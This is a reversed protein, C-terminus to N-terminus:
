EADSDPRERHQDGDAPKPDRGNDPLRYIQVNGSQKSDTDKEPPVYHDDVQNQREAAMIIKMATAKERTTTNQDVLMRTALQIVARRQEPSIEWRQM